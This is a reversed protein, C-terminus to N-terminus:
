CWTQIPESESHLGTLPHSVADPTGNKESGVPMSLHRILDIRKVVTVADNDLDLRAPTSL